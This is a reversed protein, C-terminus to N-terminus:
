TIGVEGHFDPLLGLWAQSLSKVFITFILISFYCRKEALGEIIEM